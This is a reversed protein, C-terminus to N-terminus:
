CCCCCRRRRRNLNSPPLCGHSSFGSQNASRAPGFAFCRLGCPVQARLGAWGSSAAWTRPAVPLSRGCAHFRGVPLSRSAVQFHSCIHCLLSIVSRSLCRSRAVSQFAVLCLCGPLSLFRSCYFRGTVRSGYDRSSAVSQPAVM